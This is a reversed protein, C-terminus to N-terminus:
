DTQQKLQRLHDLRKAEQEEIEAVKIAVARQNLEHGGKVAIAEELLTRDIEKQYNLNGVM